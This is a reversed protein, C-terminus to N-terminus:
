SVCSSNKLDVPLACGAIEALVDGDVRELGADTAHALVVGVEGRAVLLTKGRAEDVDLGFLQFGNHCGYACKRVKEM